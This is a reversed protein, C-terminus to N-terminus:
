EKLRCRKCKKQLRSRHNFEQNCDPCVSTKLYVRKDKGSKRDYVYKFAKGNDSHDRRKM